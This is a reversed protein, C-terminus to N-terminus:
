SSLAWDSSHSSGGNINEASLPQTGDQDGISALTSDGESMRGETSIRNVYQLERQLSEQRFAQRISPVNTVNIDNLLQLDANPRSPDLWQRKISEPFSSILVSHRAIECLDASTFQFSAKAVTYEECLPSESTHFQMPDDTGLAVCLGRKHMIEVPSDSLRTFLHHNSLPCLSMGIQALYYLYQLSPTDKLLIGHNISDALLFATALHHPEGAEGCHPKFAFTNLGRSRRLRNLQTLNAYLYYLYYSYPPNEQKTYNEPPVNGGYSGDARRGTSQLLLEDRVSEDDVCDFAGVYELFQHLEPHSSPDASVEFLPAFINTLIDQFNNVSGSKRFVGYLRPIQVMWRIRDPHQLLDNRVVWRALDDWASRKRGYISLRPEAAENFGHSRKSFLAVRAMFIQLLEAFYKGNQVNDSKLFVTRLDGDGMPNYTDNFNDFRCFIKATAKVDLRDKTLLRADEPNAVGHKALADALTLRKGKKDLVVEEAEEQFKRKVVALLEDSTVAAAAHIHNDVHMVSSFDVQSVRSQREEYEENLHKHLAYNMELHRLRRMALAKVPKSRAMNWLWQLDCEFDAYPPVAADDADTSLQMVGDRFAFRPPAIHGALKQESLTGPRQYKQRLGLAARFDLCAKPYEPNSPRNMKTVIIRHFDVVLNPTAGFNHEQCFQEDISRRRKPTLPDVPPNTGPMEETSNSDSLASPDYVSPDYSPSM